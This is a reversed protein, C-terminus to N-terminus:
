RRSARKAKKAKKAVKKTKEQGKRKLKQIERELLGELGGKQPVYNLLTLQFVEAMNDVLRFELQSKVKEPIDQLDSANDKPLIVRRIGVRHAALVKEKVGGIPLVKGRLTVEGSLAIDNQVPRNSFVSALVLTVAIGASPGDKPIGGSPFHIHVDHQFFDNLPIGLVEAQSRVYSHSAQISEKMVEGLSGTTIVQGSGRVKLAEIPMIDGGAETWALGLAVGIEPQTEARDQKILEPGLYEELSNSEMQWQTVGKDFAQTACKHCISELQRALDRIGAEQTYSRIVKKLAEESIRVQEPNLGLAQCHRPLIARKAIEIKEDETLASFEVFEVLDSIAEPIEEYNTASTILWCESLDFPVGLYADMFSRNTEPNLIEVLAQVPGELALKIGLKDIDEIMVVPNKVGSERIARMVMGPEDGFFRGPRGKLERSDTTGEVSFRVFKRGLAKALTRGLSTKGTGSPGILCLIPLRADARLLHASILEVAKGKVKELGFFEEDLRRRITESNVKPLPDSKWPLSIIWELRNSVIGFETLGPPILKLREINLLLKDKVAKPLELVQLRQQYSELERQLPDIEGLQRRIEALEQRLFTERQSIEIKTKTAEVLESNLRARDIESLLLSSLLRLRKTVELEELIKRKNALDFHLLNATLDAQRGPLNQNLSLIRLLEPPYRSDVKLLTEIRGLVEQMLAKEEDSDGRKEYLTVIEAKLYPSTEVFREIKVRRVGEVTAELYWESKNSVEVLSALVGISSINQPGAEIAQPDLSPVLVLSGQPPLDEILKINRALGVHLSTVTQPFVVTSTLPLVPLIQKETM